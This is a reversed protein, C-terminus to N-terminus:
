PSYFYQFHINENSLQELIRTNSLVMAPTLVGTAPPTEEILTTVIKALCIASTKELSNCGSIKMNIKRNHGALEGSFFVQFKGYDKRKPKVKPKVDRRFFRYAYPKAMELYSLIFGITFCALVTFITGIGRYIKAKALALGQALFHRRSKNIIFNAAADQAQVEYMETNQNYRLSSIPGSQYVRISQDYFDRHFVTSRPISYVIACEVLKIDHLKGISFLGLDLLFMTCECGQIIKTNTQHDFELSIEKLIDIDSCCDVYNTGAEVCGKIVTKITEHSEVSLNILVRAKSAIELINELKSRITPLMTPSCECPDGYCIAVRLTLKEFERAIWYPIINITYLIVDFERTERNETSRSIISKVNEVCEAEMNSFEIDGMITQPTHEMDGHGTSNQPTNASILM